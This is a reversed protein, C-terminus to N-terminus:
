PLRRQSNETLTELLHRFMQQLNDVPQKLEHLHKNNELVAQELSKLRREAKLLREAMAQPDVEHLGNQIFKRALASASLAQQHAKLHLLTIDSISLRLAFPKTRETM